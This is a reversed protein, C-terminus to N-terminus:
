RRQHQKLHEEVERVKGEIRGTEFGERDDISITTYVRRNTRRAIQHCRAVLSMVEDWTGEVATGMPGFRHPLGSARIEELVRAVDEKLSEGKGVPLISFQAIM